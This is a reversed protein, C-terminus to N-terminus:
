GSCPGHRLCNIVVSCAMRKRSQETSTVAASNIKTGPLAKRSLPGAPWSSRMWRGGALQNRNALSPSVFIVPRDPSDPPQYRDRRRITLAPLIVILVGIVLIAIRAVRYFPEPLPIADVLSTLLWIVLCYLDPLDCVLSTIM